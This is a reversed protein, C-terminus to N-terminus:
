LIQELSDVLCGGKRHGGTWLVIVYRPGAM